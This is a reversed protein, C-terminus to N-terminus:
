GTVVPLGAEVWDIIGGMDYLEVFGLEAMRATAAASRNGSRCYVVYTGDTPLEAIAEDFGPDSVDVLVAGEIHGEAFEQPTRVDILVAGEELLAQGEEPSVLALTPAGAEAAGPAPTAAVEVGQGVVSAEDAGCAPLIALGAAAM